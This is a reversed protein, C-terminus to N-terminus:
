KANAMRQLASWASTEFSITGLGGDAEFFRMPGGRWVARLLALITPM